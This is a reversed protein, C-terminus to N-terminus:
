DMVLSELDKCKSIDTSRKVNESRLRSNIWNLMATATRPARMEHHRGKSFWKLTPYARIQYEDTMKTSKSADIKAVRNEM